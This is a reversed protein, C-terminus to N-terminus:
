RWWCAILCTRLHRCDPYEEKGTGRGQAAPSVLLQHGRCVGFGLVFGSTVTHTFKDIAVPNLVVDRFSNMENRATDPNFVMGVPNEM